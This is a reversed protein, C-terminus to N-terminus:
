SDDCAPGSGERGRLVNWRYSCTAGVSDWAGIAPEWWRWDNTVTAWSNNCGWGEQGCKHRYTGLAYYDYCSSPMDCNAPNKSYVCEFGTPYPGCGDGASDFDGNHVALYALQHSTAALKGSTAYFLHGKAYGRVQKSQNEQIAVVFRYSKGPSSFNLRSWQGHLVTAAQVTAPGLAARAGRGGPVHAERLIFDGIEADINGVKGARTVKGMLEPGFTQREAKSAASQSFQAPSVAAGVAVGPTALLSTSIALTLAVLLVRARPRM